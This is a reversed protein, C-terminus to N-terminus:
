SLIVKGFCSGQVKIVEANHVVEVGYRRKNNDQYKDLNVM